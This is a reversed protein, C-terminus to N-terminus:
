NRHLPWSKIVIETPFEQSQLDRSQTEQSGRRADNHDINDRKGTAQTSEGDSLDTEAHILSSANKPTDDPTKTSAKIGTSSSNANANSTSISLKDSKSPDKDNDNNDDQNTGSGPPNLLYSLNM